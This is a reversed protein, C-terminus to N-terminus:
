RASSNRANTPAPLVEARPAAERVVIENRVEGVEPELMALDEVMQRDGESAVEGRLVLVPGDAIAEIPSVLQLAPLRRLRTQFGSTIQAPPASRVAPAAGGMTLRVRLQQRGNQNQNQGQFQQMRNMQSFFGQNGFMGQMGGLGGLGTQSSRANRTDGSDAGVFAGRRNQELFREGGTLAAGQSANPVPAGMGGSTTQGSGRGFQASGGLNRNGFMGSSSTGGYQAYASAPLGVACLACLGLILRRM